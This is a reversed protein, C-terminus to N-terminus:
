QIKDGKFLMFFLYCLLGGGIIGAVISIISVVM